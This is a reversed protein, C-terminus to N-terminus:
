HNPVLLPWYSAITFNTPEVEYYHGRAFHGTTPFYPPPNTAACQDYSYRKRYGQGSTLGVAGRQQQIIGGTLYICGRGASTTGCPEANTSGTSYNEVIFNSLALVVAQVFEDQSDDWTRAAQQASTGGTWAPIPDNLLNDAIIVDNGSFLGLMDRQDSGCPTTSSPDTVYKVDDAIIINDTAVLTVQGRLLGSIAVKGEVYVVGKYNPNLSRSLPWLYQAYTAGMHASVRSDVTGTWPLWHGYTDTAQFQGPPSTADNLIESGGLYCRLATGHTIAWGAKDQTTGAAHSAFTKFYSHSGTGTASIHGCNPSKQIGNASYSGTAGGTDAVVWWANSTSNVQYIKMFGEDIGTSDGDGDLDMAVFEIRTTAQGVAGSTTGTFALGGAQAQTKLKNLDATQPFAITPAHQTYGQDFQGNSVNSITKASAVPGKFAPKPSGSGINIIDNSFVPGFLQDGAAFVISGEVNTFYAYKAFSEQYIEGRRVVRDRQGDQVVVVASGYVGYQGSTLGTPGLYTWRQVNPIITGSASYVAVGNEWTNYGTDPYLAKNANV